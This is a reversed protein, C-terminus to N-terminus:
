CLYLLMANSKETAERYYATLENYYETFWDLMGEESWDIFDVRDEKGAERNYREQFGAESLESLGEAVEKVEDSLLYRAKGYGTEGATETGAFVANVLPRNDWMSNKMVLFPFGDRMLSNYLNDGTFLFHLELWWKHLDLEPIKWELLFEAELKDWEIQSIWKFKCFYKLRYRWKMNQFIQMEKQQLDLDEVYAGERVQQQWYESDPLWKALCFADLLLSEDKIKDLTSPSIQKLKAVIGM